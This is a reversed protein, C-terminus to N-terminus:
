CEQLLLTGALIGEYLSRVFVTVNLEDSRIQQWEDLRRSPVIYIPGSDNWIMPVILWSQALKDACSKRSGSINTGSRHSFTINMVIVSLIDDLGKLNSRSVAWALPLHHSVRFAYILLDDNISKLLMCTVVKSILGLYPCPIPSDILLDELPHCCGM